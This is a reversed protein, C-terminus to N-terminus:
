VFLITKKRRSLTIREV